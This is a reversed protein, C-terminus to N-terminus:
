LSNRNTLIKRNESFFNRNKGFKESKLKRHKKQEIIEIYM